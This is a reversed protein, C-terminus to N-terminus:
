NCSNCLYLQEIRLRKRHVQWVNIHKTGVIVFYLRDSDIRDILFRKRWDFLDIISPSPNGEPHTHWEGLYNCTEASEQWAETIIKQHTASRRSFRHRSQKDGPMPNTTKDVVVNDSGILYRGLLVGGAEPIGSSVQQYQMLKAIVGQTLKFGHGEKNRFTLGPIEASTM